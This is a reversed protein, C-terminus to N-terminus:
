KKYYPVHNMVYDVYRAGYGSYKMLCMSGIFTLVFLTISGAVILRPHTYTKMTAYYGKFASVWSFLIELMPKFLDYLTQDLGSFVDKLYTYFSSLKAVKEGCWSWATQLPKVCVNLVVSPKINSENKRAIHEWSVLGVLVIPSGKLTTWAISSIDLTDM